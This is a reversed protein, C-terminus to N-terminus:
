RVMLYFVNLASFTVRTSLHISLFHIPFIEKSMIIERSCSHSTNNGSCSIFFLQLSFFHDKNASTNVPFSFSFRFYRKPCEIKEQAATLLTIVLGHSLFRQLSPFHVKNGFLNILFSLFIQLINKSSDESCSNSTKDSWYLYLFYGVGTSINHFFTGYIFKRQEVM